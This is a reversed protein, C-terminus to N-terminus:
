EPKTAASPKSVANVQLMGTIASVDMEAFPGRMGFGANNILVDVNQTHTRVWTAFAEVSATLSVDLAQVEAAPAGAQRSEEAVKSLRDLRRAGLLLHCGERAFAV